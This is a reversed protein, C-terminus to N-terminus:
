IIKSRTARSTGASPINPMTTGDPSPEAWAPLNQLVSQMAARRSKRIVVQDPATVYVTAADAPITVIYYPVDAYNFSVNEQQEIALVAGADTTIATFPAGDPIAPGEAEPAAVSLGSIASYDLNIDLNGSEAGSMQLESADADKLAIGLEGSGIIEFNAVFLKGSKTTDKARYATIIGLDYNVTPTWVTKFVDTVLVDEELDEDYETEFGTFNVVDENWKLSVTMANVGPNNAVFATVTFTDGVTMTDEFTTEFSITPDTEAASVAMTMMSLVMAVALLWSLTKKM